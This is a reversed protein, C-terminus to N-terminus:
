FSSNVYNQESEGDESSRDDLYETMKYDPEMLNNRVNIIVKNIIKKVKRTYLKRTIVDIDSDFHELYNTRGYNLLYYCFSRDISNMTISTRSSKSTTHNALLQNCRDKFQQVNMYEGVGDFLYKKVNFKRKQGICVVTALMQQTRYIDSLTM